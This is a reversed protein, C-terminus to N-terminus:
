SGAVWIDVCILKRKSTDINMYKDHFSKDGCLPSKATM